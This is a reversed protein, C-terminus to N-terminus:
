EANSAAEMARRVMVPAVKKRYWATARIDDIPSIADVVKESAIRMNEQTLEKGILADEVEKCRLVTPAASGVAVRLVKCINNEKEIYAAANVVSLTEAKRRGLKKFSAHGEEKKLIIETLVEVEDAITKGPGKFFDKADVKRVGNPGNLVFVADLAILTPISDAAPSANMINGGISAVNRVTLGAIENITEILVPFEREIIKNEKIQSFTATAGIKVETSNETILNLDMNDLSIILLDKQGEKPIQDLEFSLKPVFDSGGALFKVENSTDKVIALLEDFSNPSEYFYGRM